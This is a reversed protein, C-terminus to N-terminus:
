TKAKLDVIFPSQTNCLGEPTSLHCWREDKMKWRMVQLFCSCIALYINYENEEEKGALIRITKQSLIHESELSSNTWALWSFEPKCNKLMEQISSHAYTVTKALSASIFEALVARSEGKTKRSWIHSHHSSGCCRNQLWPAGHMFVFSFIILSFLLFSRSKSFWM